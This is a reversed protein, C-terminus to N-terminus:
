DNMITPFAFGFSAMFIIFKGIFVMKQGFSMDKYKTSVAAAQAM